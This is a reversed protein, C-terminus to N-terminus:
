CDVGIYRIACFKLLFLIGHCLTIVSVDFAYNVSKKNINNGLKSNANLQRHWLKQLEVHFEFSPYFLPLLIRALKSSSTM